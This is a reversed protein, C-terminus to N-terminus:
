QGRVQGRWYNLIDTLTQELNIKPRWGTTKIFKAPNCVLDPIDVARFLKQDVKIKIKVKSCSLLIKLVKDLSYSTGTGINYVEGPTCKQSALYYARVM